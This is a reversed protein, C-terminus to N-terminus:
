RGVGVVVVMMGGCSAWPDCRVQWPRGVGMWGSGDLRGFKGEVGGDVWGGVSELGALLLCSLLLLLLLFSFGHVGDLVDGRVLALFEHAGQLLQLDLVGQQVYCM